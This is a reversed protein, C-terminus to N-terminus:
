PMGCTSSVSMTRAATAIFIARVHTNGALRQHCTALPMVIMDDADATVMSNGSRKLLGIVKCSFSGSRTTAGIPNQVGFLERRVLEGLVCVMSGLRMEVDTFRRGAELKWNRIDFYANSTGAVETEHERGESTFLLQTSAMPAVHRAGLIERQIADVDTPRFPIRRDQGPERRPQVVILNRAMAQVDDMVQRSVGQMVAVVTIVAAVGIIMGLATLSTRLLNARLERLAMHICNFFM